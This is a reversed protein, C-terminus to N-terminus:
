KTLLVQHGTPADPFLLLKLIGNVNCQVQCAPNGVVVPSADGGDPYGCSGAISAFSAPTDIGCVFIGVYSQTAPAEADDAGPRPTVQATLSLRRGTSTTGIHGDYVGIYVSFNIGGDWDRYVGNGPGGSSEWSGIQSGGWTNDFPPYNGVGRPVIPSSAQTFVPTATVVRSAGGGSVVNVTMETGFQAAVDVSITAVTGSTGIATLSHTGVPATAPLIIMANNADQYSLPVAEADFCLAAIEDFLGGVLM